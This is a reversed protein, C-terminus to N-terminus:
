GQSPLAKLSKAAEEGLKDFTPLTAQGADKVIQTDTVGPCLAMVKVKTLKNFYESGMSKTFGVVFWKTGSDVPMSFLPQLGLISAVNIIHGGKGGSHTGMHRLGLLTGSVLGTQFIITM